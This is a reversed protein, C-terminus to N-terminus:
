LGHAVVVSARTGIARARCCSSGGCHSAQVGCCLDLAALFLYIFLKKLFIQARINMAAENTILLLQFSGLHGEFPPYNFLCPDM